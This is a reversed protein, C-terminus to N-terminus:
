RIRNANRASRTRMITYDVTPPIQVGDGEDSEPPCDAFDYHESGCKECPRVVAPREHSSGARRDIFLSM